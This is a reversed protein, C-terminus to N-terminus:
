MLYTKFFFIKQFANPLYPWLLTLVRQKEIEQCLTEAPKIKAHMYYNQM